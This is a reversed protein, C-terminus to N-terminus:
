DPVVEAIGHICRMIIHSLPAGKSSREGARLVSCNEISSYRPCRCRRRATKVIENAFPLRIHEYIKLATPLTSITTLPHTLIRSLLYADEMAQGAGAGLHTEMAHAADGLIAVNGQENVYRPMDGHMHIAWKSVKDIAQILEGVEDEFGDFVDKLEQVSVDKVWSKDPYPQRASFASPVTVFAVINLLTGRSIPYVIFHLYYFYEISTHVKEKGSYNVPTTRWMRKEGGENETSKLQCDFRDKTILARYAVTGSWRPEVAKKLKLNEESLGSELSARSYIHGFMGRRVSSRVGDAGILIDTEATTDDAFHLTIPGNTNGHSSSSLSLYSYSVLKKSTHITCIPSSSLALELPKLLASRHVFLPNVPHEFTYFHYGGDPEDSKRFKFGTDGEGGFEGKLADMIDLGRLITQTRPWISIGAGVTAVEPQSEYLDISLPSTPNNFKSLAVALTLGGPGGGCIAVRLKPQSAPNSSPPSM